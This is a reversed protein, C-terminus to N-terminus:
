LVRRGLLIVIFILPLYLISAMLTRRAARKSKGLAFPACCFFFATSLIGAIAIYVPAAGAVMPQSLTLPILAASPLLTQWALLRDAHCQPAVRYGARSYDERYMWAIAMFHPFQWLFLTFYLLWAPYSRCQGSGTKWRVALPRQRRIKASVRRRKWCTATSRWSISGEGEVEDWDESEQVCFDIVIFEGAKRAGFGDGGCCASLAKWKLRARPLRM